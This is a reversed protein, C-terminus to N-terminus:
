RWVVAEVLLQRKGGMLGASRLVGPNHDNTINFVGAPPLREKGPYSSVSRLHYDGVLKDMKKIM